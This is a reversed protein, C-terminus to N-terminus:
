LDFAADAIDSLSASYYRLDEFKGNTINVKDSDLLKNTMEFSFSGSIYKGDIESITITGSTGKYVTTDNEGGPRYIAECQFKADSTITVNLDYTGKEAGRILLTLYEGNSIDAGTTGIIVMGELGDTIGVKSTSRFVFNKTTGDVTASMTPLKKCGTFLTTSIIAVLLITLISIRKM